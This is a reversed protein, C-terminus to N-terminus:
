SIQFAAKPQHPHLIKGVLKKLFQGISVPAPADCPPVDTMRLQTVLASIATLAGIAVIAAGTGAWDSLWGTLLAGILYGADRWFRFTGLSEARQDPHTNDAIAALFVPYVAATGLGLVASCAAFQALSEATLFGFIGLAQLSMGAVILQKKSVLDSWKGTLVQTVGWVFPYLGAVLGIQPLSFGQRAMLLPLLGWTMGDNLNNVLGAQTVAALNPHRWTTDAFINPLKKRCSVTAEAAAHKRTDRVWFVSLTLGALAIGLGAWFIVAAAEFQGALWGSGFAALAVAVYGAFENLGMALGRQREGVLDIKMVVTSSWALGQHVGLLVNAAVVWGWSPAFFLMFPVPLALLWGGVLLRKRGFRNALRGTLYNAAAKAAGFAAIFSLLSLASKVGFKEEALLPVLTRELGIMGGVFANVLVLLAFQRINQRLGLMSQTNKGGPGRFPSRQRVGKLPGPPPPAIKM